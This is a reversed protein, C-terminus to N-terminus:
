LMSRYLDMYEALRKHKDFSLAKNLCAEKFSYGAKCLCEIGKIMADVDNKEVVIGCNKDVIEPSGGTNFTIVPTGCAIAEMNVTPYNDERTPNVFVDAASYIEALEKPNSTCHISIIGDPLKKDINKDTGVLVIQYNNNLRKYLELFIDLGKKDDWGYAVGLLIYKDECHWKKKFDSVTPKFLKLDIGNNIIKVPYSKLFSKGVLNSLWASPTVIVLNNIGNFWKKKYEYMFQSNDIYSEPYLKYQPCHHCGTEWKNCGIMDFHPCHGTFAWCDHLTWVVKIDEKKIYEFLLPLNVFCGHLNHLHIIDPQFERMIKILKRTALGSFFGIKGTIKSLTIHLQKVFINSTVKYDKRKCKKWSFGTTCFVRNDNNILEDALHFMVSGTSGYPVANIQAVKM